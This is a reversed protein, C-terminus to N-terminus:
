GPSHSIGCTFKSSTQRLLLKHLRPTETLLSMHNIEAQFSHKIQCNCALIQRHAIQKVRENESKSDM